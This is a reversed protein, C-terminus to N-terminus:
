VAKEMLGTEVKIEHTLTKQVPCKSSIELLRAIQQDDLDGTFKLRKEILHIYGEESECDDCDKAHVRTQDLYVEVEQLDWGKRDAYMRLTMAVCTGLSVLLFDYPTPGLDNGYPRPEDATLQHNQAAVITKYRDTGIKAIVQAM